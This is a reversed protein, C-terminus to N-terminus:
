YRQGCAIWGEGVEHTWGMNLCRDKANELFSTLLAWYLWDGSLLVRKPVSGLGVDHFGVLSFLFVALFFAAVFFYLRPRRSQGMIASMVISIIPYYHQAVDLSSLLPPSFLGNAQPRWAFSTFTWYRLRERKLPDGGILSWRSNRTEGEGRTVHRMASLPQAM